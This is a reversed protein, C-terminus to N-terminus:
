IRSIYPRIFNELVFFPPLFKRDEITSQYDMSSPGYNKQSEDYIKLVKKFCNSLEKMNVIIFTYYLKSM